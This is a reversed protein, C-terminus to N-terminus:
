EVRGLATKAPAFDGALSLAARYQQAANQKNGQKELLQGLLFYAQFVPTDESHSDGAIYTQLLSIARDFNEGAHYLVNAADYLATGKPQLSIARQIAQQMENKRGRRRYFAALDVWRDALNSVEAAAHLQSEALSYNKQKEAVMAQVQHSSAPDTKEMAAAQALAKDTGGGLFGPAEIYYESLDVRAHSNAPNLAVAREFESHTKRALPLANVWSSNEAKSGYARALWMHADSDNPAASVAKQAADIAEDWREESYYARALLLYASADPSKQVQARLQTVAESVRGARLLELASAASASGCALGLLILLAACKRIMAQMTGREANKTGRQAFGAM